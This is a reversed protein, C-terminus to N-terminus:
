QLFEEINKGSYYYYFAYAIELDNLATEYLSVASTQATLADLYAVNDVIGASYKKEITEFASNAARLASKASQIKIKSTSIRARALEYNMKQEDNKYAIRKSLAEANLEVAQKNQAVVGGDYLRFNASLM